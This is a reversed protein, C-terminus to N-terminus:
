KEGGQKAGARRPMRRRRGLERVISEPGVGGRAARVILFYMLDAAEWIVDERSEAEALEGAEELLKGALQEADLSSTLSGPVPNRIRDTVVQFLDELDFREDGFCSLAGTHCAPGGFDVTILLADGDCDTRARLFRRVNGSTEGKRWLQKRSRSYLWLDRSAFMKELSERSSYALMLVRGAPDRVITPLPEKSWDLTHIFAEAPSFVGQYLAMGLQLDVGGRSLRAVEELSAVGGAATVPLETARRIRRVAAEDTGGLLGEKDACTFLFGGAYPELRPIVAEPELGTSKSWGRIVIRGDRVDLAIMVRDKGLRGAIQELNDVNVGGPQFAATGLIVKRAGLGMMREADEPGRIGGGVRCDAASCLERIRDRNHGKEMAADLDIVALDGFRFFDRATELPDERELVKDRGRRLQVARGQQLDISPVIM